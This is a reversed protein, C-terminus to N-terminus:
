TKGRQKRPKRQFAKRSRIKQPEHTNGRDKNPTSNINKHLKLEAIGLKNERHKIGQLVTQTCSSM